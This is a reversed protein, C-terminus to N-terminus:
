EPFKTSCAVSRPLPDKGRQLHLQDEAIQAPRSLLHRGADIYGHPSAQVAMPGRRYLRPAVTTTSAPSPLVPTEKM